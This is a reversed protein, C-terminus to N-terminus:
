YVGDRSIIPRLLTSLMLGIISLVVLILFTLQYSGTIDFLHGALAVGITGGITGIFIVIGFIVGHSSTGFLEAVTPSILTFFGGHPFGYIIAFLYLMWLEEALRLWIFAVVLTLFCITTAWKYGVRDGINGMILRGVISAGGIAALVNAANTASIGLDTAHPAIHIIIIQTCLLVIFYIGCTMWFQRTHVAERLSLGIEVSNVSDTNAKREGDPLLGMQGPERRLFQAALILLVTVIIGLIIYSVRWGYTSILWNAVLPMILISVGAGVKTIGTMIGRKKTFWKAITSLVSVDMPSLGIGIIVGYFLYLQWITNVQSMLLYGLGLFFGCAVIIMRPGFRDTLRGAIISLFGMLLFSLSSAGSITARLWGFEMLLPKFFVGFTTIIGFATLQICFAAAVVIYGYFFRPKGNETLLPTKQKTLVFRM